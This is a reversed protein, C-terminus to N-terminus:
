KIIKIRYDEVEGYGYNDVVVRSGTLRGNCSSAPASNISPGVKLAIRMRYYEQTDIIADDPVDINFHAVISGKNGNSPDPIFHKVVREAESMKADGNFDIWVSLTEYFDEDSPYVVTISLKNGKSGQKLTIVKSSDTVYDKYGDGASKNDLILKGGADTVKVRSIYEFESSNAKLGCYELAPFHLTQSQTYNGVTGSCINAVQVEYDVGFDLHHVGVSIEASPSESTFSKWETDTKKKYRISYTANEAGEWSLLAKRRENEVTFHDPAQSSCGELKTVLLPKSVTYFVNDIASIRLQIKKGALSAPLIFEQSGDNPTSESLVAWNKGEDQTYDIKVNAVSYPANQTNATDWLIPKSVGYHLIGSTVAFPGDKGVSINQEASAVQQQNLTPHNDRVTLVFKMEKVINSVAEWDDESILKGAIVNELKPFYRIPETGPKLSRFNAGDKRDGSIKVLKTEASNQQEWTYTLPDNEKDTVQASLVFPTKKPITYSKLPSIVPLTNQISTKQACTAKSLVGRIQNLSVYNFYPDTSQQVNAETIGAYGMITSGSGPEVQVGSREIDHSFTHNAGLQHGIEHAVYDIDFADGFPEDDISPSTFASGKQTDMSDGFPDPEPDICVCGICGANGGGGSAGFLHGLDYADNGLVKTLNRQLEVNWEGAVGLDADSYPDTNPDTYILEPANVLNLHLALDREYVQNVRTLTANIQALAKEVSGFVQTYEGTVSIAMRITRYKRDSSSINFLTNKKYAEANKYLHDLGQIDSKPESTTCEFARGKAKLSKPHVRYVDKQKREPDIFSYGEDSSLMSQFDYPSVSFRITRRSNELSVGQYSGLQYKAAMAEDVVPFSRVKFKELKGEVNPIEIIMEANKASLQTNLDKRLQHLNLKYFQEVENNKGAKTSIKQWYNQSYGFAGLAATILIFIKKM